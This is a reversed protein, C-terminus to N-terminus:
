GRAVAKQLVRDAIAKFENATLLDKKEFSKEKVLKLMAMREEETAKVGLKECWEEISPPGSNKGLVISVPKQGVLDPAFPVSELPNERRSLRVWGAIIGSEVEYLKDGVIPRNPPITLKARELVFRSVECMKETHIGLDVSHLCLLALVVDEMPVNGAREGVGTITTQAVTAGASLAAITNAVGLGFDQHCHIEVPKKLRAIVKKVVHYVADPAACGMTDALTFADMHGETAVREVMDLLPEVETRTSDITFFVTYLGAEKAALTADISSKIARDVTWGYANKIMHESAPIEIVVGSCGCAKVTRVEDAICRGFAFIESKLGLSAIDQIAAKDQESVAPMGAEIRHVGLADLQRAIAVKEERRFVVATQQEGDRLTVDHIKIKGPFSFNKRVEPLFNWPSTFWKETKWPQAM